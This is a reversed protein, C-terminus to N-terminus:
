TAARELEAEALNSKANARELTLTRNLSPQRKLSPQREVPGDAATGDSIGVGAPATALPTSAARARFAGLKQLVRLKGWKSRDKPLTDLPSVDGKDGKGAHAELEDILLHMRQAGQQRGETDDTKSLTTLMQRLVNYKGMHSTGRQLSPMALSTKSTGRQLSPTAPSGGSPTPSTDAEANQQEWLKRWVGTPKALLEQHTGNDVVKGDDM